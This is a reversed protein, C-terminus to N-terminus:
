PSRSLQYEAQVQRLAELRGYPAQLFQEVVRHIEPTAAQQKAASDPVFPRQGRDDKAHVQGVRQWYGPPLQEADMGLRPLIRTLAGQPLETYNVLVWNQDRLDWVRELIRALLRAAFEEPSIWGMMWPPCGVLWSGLLPDGRLDMWGPPEQMLSVMVEVPDRYIFVRPCDPLIGNLIPLFAANWSSFKVFYKHQGGHRPRGLLRLLSAAMYQKVGEDLHGWQPGLLDNLPDPESMVLNGPLAALMQSVLTSGCRSLHFIAGSLPLSAVDQARDFLDCQSVFHAPAAPHSQLFGAVTQSFFPATFPTEGLDLCRLVPNQGGDAVVQVPTLRGLDVPLAAELSQGSEPPQAEAPVPAPGTVAPAAPPAPEAEPFLRDRGDVYLTEGMALKANNAARTLVDEEGYLFAVMAYRDGRVVPMVEHLLGCSFVVAGGTPAKFRDASFEPFRVEGGDYVGDDGNLNISLAFRRHKAGANINDRHRFFHGGTEGGYCCILDRDMRTVDFTFAHAIAPVLRDAIRRRLGEVLAPDEMRVDSRRKLGYNTVTATQGNRDLMFGSDQGGVQHFYAIMQDCFERELLGPYILIPPFLKVGYCAQPPSPLSQLLQGLVFGHGQPHDLPIVAMVRLMPDLVVTAPADSLGWQRTLNQDYDTLFVLSPNKILWYLSRQPPPSTLVGYCVMHDDSFLAKQCLLDGLKPDFDADAGAPDGLFSLVVYRGADVHIDITDGTISKATFWRIPDGIAYTMDGTM